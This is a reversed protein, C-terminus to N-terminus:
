VPVNELASLDKDSALMPDTIKNGDSSNKPKYIDNNVGVLAVDIDKMEMAKKDRAWPQIEASSLLCYLIAGLM